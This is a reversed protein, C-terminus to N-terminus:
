APPATLEYESLDMPPIEARPDPQRASVYIEGFLDEQVLRVRQQKTLELVAMFTVIIELRSRAEGMLSSFRVRRSTGVREIVRQICEAISVVIPSVVQDVPPAPPHATLVRRFAEALEALSVEGPQLKREVKPPPAMRPFVHRGQEEIQRLKAATIKYRKYERLREVLDDAWDDEEVPKREEPQPLLVRSKIVLLRAAIVLFEALNAASCEELQVIYALYQDTVLALSVLTIDLQEREILRLLLDLPGEFVQLSVQYTTMRAKENPKGSM